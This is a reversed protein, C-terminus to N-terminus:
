IIFSRFPLVKYYNFYHEIKARSIIQQPIDKTEALNQHTGVM